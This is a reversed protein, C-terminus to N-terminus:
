RREEAEIEIWVDDDALEVAHPRLAVNRPNVGAGTRADFEFCHAGCTIVGEDLTGESLPMGLHPCRDDYAHVCGDLKVLLLRRGDVVCGRMEGDWLESAGGIRHRAM